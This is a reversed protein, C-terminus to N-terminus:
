RRTPRSREAREQRARQSASDSEPDPALQWDQATGTDQESRSTGMESWRTPRSLVSWPDRPPMAPPVLRLCDSAMFAEGTIKVGEAILEVLAGPELADLELATVLEQSDFKMSLDMIGDGELEHCDCPQGDFPTGVDEFWSRPGPPGELPSVSGGVGDARSLTISSVDVETIDFSASGLLGVSLVGNSKRNFSNPCSGPKIDLAVSPIAATPEGKVCIGFVTYFETGTNIPGLEIAGSSINFRYFNSTGFDASWFSTGNPDINLAFWFDEGPTDYTQAVLGFEDLLLINERNAVLLGGSGDGPPLLRLAFMQTGANSFDALQVDSVVDYRFVTTGESTYFLTQQDAALEIWDSGVNEIAVDFKQLFTDAADYKQIDHDFGAHGVYYDGNAAFVISEAASGGQLGTDISTLINHPHVDDYVTVISDSFDTTYLMALTPDFACGTTFGGLGSSISEKYTGNNDYVQYTGDSIGVFVDGEEWDSAMAPGALAALVVPLVILGFYSRVRRPKM